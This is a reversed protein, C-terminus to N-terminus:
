LEPEDSGAEGDATAVRVLSDRYVWNAAMKEYGSAIVSATITRRSTASRGSYTWDDRTLQAGLVELFRFPQPAIGKLVDVPRNSSFIVIILWVDEANHGQWGRLYRSAKIEIGEAAHQAANGAFQGTPLLDPHGNHYLNKALSPCYKPISGGMFEGVLSSFSAPMLMSEFRAIDRTHLQNNVFGLFDLFEQMAAQVHVTTLGYPLAVHPNFGAPDLPHPTCAEAETMM